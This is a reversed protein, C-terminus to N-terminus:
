LWEGNSYLIQGSKGLKTCCFFGKLFLESLQLIQLIVGAQFSLDFEFLVQVLEHGGVVFAQAVDDIDEIGIWYRICGGCRPWFAAAGTDHLNVVVRVCAFQDFGFTTVM